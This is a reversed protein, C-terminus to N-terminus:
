RRVRGTAAGATIAKIVAEVWTAEVIDVTAGSVRSKLKLGFRDDDTRYIRKIFFWEEISGILIWMTSRDGIDPVMRGGDAILPGVVGGLNPRTRHNMGDEGLPLMGSVWAMGPIDIIDLGILFRVAKQEATEGHAVALKYDEPSLEPM